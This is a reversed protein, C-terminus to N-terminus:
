KEFMKKSFISINLMQWHSFNSTYEPVEHHLELQFLLRFNLLMNMFTYFLNELSKQVKWHLWFCTKEENKSIIADPVADKDEAYIKKVCKQM